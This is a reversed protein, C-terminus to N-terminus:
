SIKIRPDIYLLMLDAIFNAVVVAVGGIVVIFQLIPFDLEEITKITRYGIGPYNFIVEVQYAGGIIFAIYMAILAIM